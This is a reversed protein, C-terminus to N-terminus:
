QKRRKFGPEWENPDPEYTTIIYTVEEDPADSAVVHIPRGGSWGLVLRSAFPYDEPYEEVVESKALVAEVDEDCIGRQLMRLAAHKRFILRRAM